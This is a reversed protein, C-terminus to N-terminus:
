CPVHFKSIALLADQLFVEPEADHTEPVRYPAPEDKSIQIAQCEPESRLSELENLRRHDGLHLRVDILDLFHHLSKAGRVLALGLCWISPSLEFRELLLVLGPDLGRPLRSGLGPATAESPQVELEARRM